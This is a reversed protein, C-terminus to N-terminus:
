VDEGDTRKRRSAQQEEERAIKEYLAELMWRHRPTKIPQAKVLADIQNLMAAPVRLIVPTTETSESTKGGPSGGRNILEEVNVPAAAGAAKPKRTIAM